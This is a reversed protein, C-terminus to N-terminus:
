KTRKIMQAFLSKHPVYDYNIKGRVGKESERRRNNKNQM